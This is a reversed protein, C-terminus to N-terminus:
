SPTFSPQYLIGQPLLALAAEADARLSDSKLVKIFDYYHQQNLEVKTEMADILHKVRMYETIEPGRETALGHVTEGIMGRDSMEDALLKALNNKALARAIATSNRSLTEYEWSPPASDSM